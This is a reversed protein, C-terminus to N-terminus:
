TMLRVSFPSNDDSSHARRLSTLKRSVCGIVWRSSPRRRTTTPLPPPSYPPNMSGNSGVLAPSDTTAITTRAAQWNGLGRIMQVRLRLSRGSRGVTARRTIAAITLPAPAPPAEAAVPLPEIDDLYASPSFNLLGSDLKVDLYHKEDATRRVESTVTASEGKAGYREGGAASDRVFRVRDGVKPQWAAASLKDESVWWFGGAHHGTTFDVRYGSKDAAAIVGEDGKSGYEANDAILVVKDGVKFKQESPPPVLEFSHADAGNCGEFIVLSSGGPKIDLVTYEEGVRGFDSPWMSEEIRRVRDGVKFKGM